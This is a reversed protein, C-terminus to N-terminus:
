LNRKDNETLSADKYVRGQQMIEKYWYQKAFYDKLDTASFQYGHFAYICNRVIRLQMKSFSVLSYENIERRFFDKSFEPMNPWITRYVPDTGYPCDFPAIRFVFSDEIKEPKCNRITITSKNDEINLYTANKIQNDSIVIYPWKYTYNSIVIKIEGIDGKWYKGTGYIYKAIQYGSHETYKVKYKVKSTSNQYEPFIVNKVYWNTTYIRRVDDITRITGTVYECNQLNGNFETKFDEIEGVGKESTIYEPFGVKITINPGNNYFFFDVEVTYYENYFDIKIEERLLSVSNSKEEMPYAAGMRIDWFPGDNSYLGIAMLMFLTILAKKKNMNEGM